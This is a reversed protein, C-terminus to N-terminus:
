QHASHGNLFRQSAFSQFVGTEALASQTAGLATMLAVLANLFRLGHGRFDCGDRSSQIASVSTALNISPTSSGRWVVSRQTLRLAAMGASTSAPETGDFM